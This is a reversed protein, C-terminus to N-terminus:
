RPGAGKGEDDRHLHLREHRVGASKRMKSEIVRNRVFDPILGNLSLLVRNLRGPVILKRGKVMGDVAMRAVTEAPVITMREIGKLHSNTEHLRPNTNVPGPALISVGIGSGTLSVRLSESFAHVFAKTGVYVEKHPMRFYAGMSGVNLIYAKDHTRLIPLLLHTLHVVASVNLGIQDRYFTRPYEDFVGTSGMGANNVLAMPSIGKAQLDDFLAECNERRSLDTLFTHVNVGLSERIQAAKEPLSGTPTSVLYLDHGRRALERAIEFGIGQGAGTVLATGRGRSPRNSATM